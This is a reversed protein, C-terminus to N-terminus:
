VDPILQLYGHSIHVYFEFESKSQVNQDIVQYDHLHFGYLYQSIDM